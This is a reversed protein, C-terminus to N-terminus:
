FSAWYGLTCNVSMKDSTLIATLWYKGHCQCHCQHVQASQVPNGRKETQAM